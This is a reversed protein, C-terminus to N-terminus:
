DRELMGIGARLRRLSEERGLIHCIEVGGGPTTQKGSVAVRVPWLLTGNKVGLAEALGMLADHITDREWDPLKELLPVAHRLM